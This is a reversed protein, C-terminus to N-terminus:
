CAYSVEQNIVSSVKSRSSCWNKTTRSRSSIASISAFKSGGKKVHVSIACDVLTATIPNNYIIEGTSRNDLCFATGKYVLMCLLGNCPAIVTYNWDNYQPIKTSITAFTKPLAVRDLLAKIDQKLM